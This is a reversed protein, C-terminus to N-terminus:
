AFQYNLAACLSTLAATWGVGYFITRYPQLGLVYTFTHMYRAGTYISILPTYLSSPVGALYAVTFGVLNISITEVDNGFIRTYRAATQQIRKSDKFADQGQKPSDLQSQLSAFNQKIGKFTPLASDEPPRQGANGLTNGQALATAFYKLSLALTCATLAKLSNPDPSSM